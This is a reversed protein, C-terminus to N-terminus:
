WALDTVDERRSIWSFHGDDVRGPRGDILVLIHRGTADATIRFSDMPLAHSRGTPEGTDASFKALVYDAHDDSGHKAGQVTATLTRGDPDILFANVAGDKFRGHDIDVNRVERQTWVNGGGRRTDLMVIKGRNSVYGLTREDPAWTMSGIAGPGRTTWTKKAHRGLDVVTLNVDDDWDQAVALRTGHPSVALHRIRRYPGGPVLTPSTTTGDQRVSVRYVRGSRGDQEPKDAALFFTEDDGAAVALYKGGGAAVVDGAKRGTVADIVEARGETVAVVYRPGQAVLAPDPRWPDTGRTLAAVGVAVLVLAAAVALPAAWTRRRRRAPPATLPRLAEPRVTSTAAEYADRLRNEIETM